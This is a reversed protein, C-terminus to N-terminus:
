PSLKDWAKFTVRPQPSINWRPSIDQNYFTFDNRAKLEPPVNWALSENKLWMRVLHRTNKDDNQFPLRSHCIAWNNVYTLDGPQMDLILAHQLAVEEIFDLAELQEPKANPLESARPDDIHGTIAHRVFNLLVQGGNYFLLPRGLGHGPRDPRFHLVTV